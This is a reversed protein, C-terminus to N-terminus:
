ARALAQCCIAAMPGEPAAWHGWRPARVAWAAARSPGSGRLDMGAQRGVGPGLGGAALEVLRLRFGIADDPQGGVAVARSCLGAGARVAACGPDGGARGSARDSEAPGLPRKRSQTSATPPYRTQRSSRITRPRAPGSLGASTGRIPSRDRM